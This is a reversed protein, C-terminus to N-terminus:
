NKIEISIFVKEKLNISEPNIQNTNTDSEMAGRANLMMQNPMPINNSEVGYKIELINGLSVGAAKAMVGAKSMGDNVAQELLNNQLEKRKQDSLSFFISSEPNSDSKTGTNILILLSEQNFPITVKLNQSGVFGSDIRTGRNYIINRQINFATTKIDQDNFKSKNLDKVLTNVRKNLEDVTESYSMNKSQILFNVTVEDPTAEIDGYGIVVIKSETTQGILTTSLFLLLVVIKFIKIKLM